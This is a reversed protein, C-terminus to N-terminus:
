FATRQAQAYRLRVLIKMLRVRERWFIEEEEATLEIAPNSLQYDIAAIRDELDLITAQTGARVVRPEEPLSRLDNELERSEVMLAELVNLPQESALQTTAPDPTARFEPEGTDFPPRMVIAALVAAAAVGGGAYWATKPGFRRRTVLGEAEAQERIREWVARPPMTDPLAELGRRLADREDLTLGCIMETDKTQESKQESM